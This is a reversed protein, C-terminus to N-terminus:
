SVRSLLYAAMCGGPPGCVFYEHRNFLIHRQFTPYVVASLM